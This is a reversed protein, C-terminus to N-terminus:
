RKRGGIAVVWPGVAIVIGMPRLELDLVLIRHSRRVVMGVPRPYVRRRITKWEKATDTM